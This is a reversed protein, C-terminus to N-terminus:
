AGNEEKGEKKSGSKIKLITITEELGKVGRILERLLSEINGLSSACAATNATISPIDKFYTEMAKRVRVEELPESNNNRNFNGTPAAQQTQAPPFKSKDWDKCDHKQKTVADIFWGKENEDPQTWQIKTGCGYKCPKTFAM